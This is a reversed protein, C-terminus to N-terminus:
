FLLGAYLGKLQNKQIGEFLNSIFNKDEASILPLKEGIEKRMNIILPHIQDAVVFGMSDANHRRVFRHNLSGSLLALFPELETKSFLGDIRKADYVKPKSTVKIQKGGAM